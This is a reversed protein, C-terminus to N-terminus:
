FSSGFSAFHSAAKRYTRSRGTETDTVTVTVEISTLGGVFVWFHGDVPRGDLVKVAVDPFLPGGSGSLSGFLGASGGRFPVADLPAGALRVEVAFRGELLCLRHADATCAAEETRSQVATMRSGEALPGETIGAAKAGFPGFAYVDGVSGFRGAPNFYRRVANTAPDRVTIVYELNTLGAYFVWVHGNLSRGDFVKVAVELNAAEFFTFGGASGTLPQSAAAHPVGASDRWSVEVELGALCLRTAAPQCTRSGSLPLSWLERGAVGDAAAFFLHDGLPTLEAPNSSAAGPALDQVLRTGAATGDCTWLERGHAGDAASFFLRDGLASLERPESSAPGPVIDQVIATGQPTGDTKWLEMGHVSDTARFFLAGGVPTFEPAVYPDLGEPGAPALLVASAEGHGRYLALRDGEGDHAYALFYLDGRFALPSSPFLISPFEPGGLAPIVRVTGERTGDTRFLAPGAFRHESAWGTFYIADALRNFSMDNACNSCSMDLIARTGAATGDSRFVQTEDESLGAAFYVEQGFITVSGIQQLGPQLSTLKATGALTGDSTWFSAEPVELESVVFLLKGAFDHLEALTEGPFSALRITGPATGDTRWLEAAAGDEPNLAYYSLGGSRTMGRRVPSGAPAATGPIPEADAPGALWLGRGEGDDATFLLRDGFATLDRPDSSGAPVGLATIIRTGAATGDTMWPQAGHPGDAGAFFVRSGVAALDLWGGALGGLVATGAATGDTRALHSSGGITVSLWIWGAAATFAAPSSDCAGPCLDAVLHTGAGTGDTTWLETGHAADRGAFLVRGGAEIMSPQAVLEPCGGACGTVPATSALTGRTSWLRLGAPGGSAAFLVRDRLVAIQDQRPSFASGPLGANDTLRATGRSTGDSRWLNIQYGDRVAVFAVVGDAIPQLFNTVLPEWDHGSEIFRKVQRTGEATGDSTWLEGSYDGTMFFLRSGANTLLWLFPYEGTPIKRVLRTGAATGDTSWLGKEDNQESLFYLRGKLLAFDYALSSFIRVTGAATGDTSYTGCGISSTCGSFILRGQFVAVRIDYFGFNPGVSLTGAQTGDTRWLRPSSAPDALPEAVFFALGPLSGVMRPRYYGESSTRFAGLLHTGADTGDTFWLSSAEADRSFFFAGGGVAAFQEPAAAPSGESPPLPNIDRVLSATQAGAPALMAAALVVALLLPRLPTDRM